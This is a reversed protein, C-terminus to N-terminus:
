ACVFSSCNGSCCQASSSCVSGAALCSAARAPTPVAISIIIPVAVAAAIGVKRVFERRTLGDMEEPLTVSGQLLHHKDLQKLAYWVVNPQVPAQLEVQMLQSIDAVSHKGDCHKWVLAVTRNLCHARDREADYVLIEDGLDKVVLGEERASAVIPDSTQM